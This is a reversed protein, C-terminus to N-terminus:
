CWGGGEKFLMWAIHTATGAISSLGFVGSILAVALFFIAEQLM